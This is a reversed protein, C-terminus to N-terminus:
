SPTPVVNLTCSGRAIGDHDNWLCGVGLPILFERNTLTAYRRSVEQSRQRSISMKGEAARNTFQSSQSEGCGIKDMRGLKTPSMPMRQFEHCRMRLILRETNLDKTTMQVLESGRCSPKLVVAGLSDVDVHTAGHRLDIPM